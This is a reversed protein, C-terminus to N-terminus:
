ILLLNSFVLYFWFTRFLLKEDYNSHMLYKEFNTILFEGRVIKLDTLQQYFKKLDINKYLVDNLLHVIQSDTLLNSPERFRVSSRIKKDKIRIGRKKLSKYIYRKPFVTDLISSDMKAFSAIFDDSIYPMFIKSENGEDHLLNTLVKTDSGQVYTLVKLFM